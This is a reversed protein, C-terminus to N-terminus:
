KVQVFKITGKEGDRGIGAYVTFGINDYVLFTLSCLDDLVFIYHVVLIIASLQLFEGLLYSTKRWLKVNLQLTLYAHSKHNHPIPYEVKYM